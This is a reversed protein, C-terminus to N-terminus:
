SRENKRELTKIYGSLKNMEISIKSSKSLERKLKIELVSM